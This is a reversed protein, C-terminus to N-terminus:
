KCTRCSVLLSNRRMDHGQGKGGGGAVVVRIGGGADGAAM